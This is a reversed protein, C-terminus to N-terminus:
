EDDSDNQKQQQNQNKQKQQKKAVVPSIRTQWHSTFLKITDGEQSISFGESEAKKKWENYLDNIEVLERLLDEASPRYVKKASFFSFLGM